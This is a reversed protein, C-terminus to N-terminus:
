EEDLTKIFEPYLNVYVWQYVRRTKVTSIWETEEDYVNEEESEFIVKDAIGGPDNPFILRETLYDRICHACILISFIEM